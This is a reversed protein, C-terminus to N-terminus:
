RRSERSLSYYTGAFIIAAGVFVMPDLAEGYFIAGVLAILPLRIFDIGVVVSADALRVARTMCYHATYSGVGIAVIWPLDALTPAVWQPLSTALALPMQILAMWFLVALPADTVSLRKTCILTAAYALSGALMVLAAPHVFGFGPRLILLVGALGLVLMAVRPRTLREGLVAAALVATWVPMTFEIAFVTALPLAGIALVWAYQGGFHVLNRLLHLGFRRTGLVAIGARPALALVIALMVISRMFLVEFPGMHVLLQRVAVAMASFSIVAGGMWLAGRVAASTAQM